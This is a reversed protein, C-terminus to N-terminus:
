RASPAPGTSNSWDAWSLHALAATRSFQSAGPEGNLCNSYLSLLFRLGDLQYPRLTGGQLATPVAVDERDFCSSYSLTSLDDAVSKCGWLTNPGNLVDNLTAVCHMSGEGRGSVLQTMSAYRVTHVMNYYARQGQLLREAESEPRAEREGNDAAAAAGTAAARQEQVQWICHWGIFCCGTLAWQCQGDLLPTCRAVKM